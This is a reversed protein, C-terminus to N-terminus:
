QGEGCALLEDSKDWGRELDDGRGYEVLEQRRAFARVDDAFRERGREPPPLLQDGTERVSAVDVTDAFRKEAQRAVIALDVATANPDVKRQRV